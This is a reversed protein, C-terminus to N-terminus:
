LYVKLTNERQKSLYNKMLLHLSVSLASAPCEQVCRLCRICARRTHMPCRTKCLGCSTCNNNRILKVGMRSRWGPVLDAFWHKRQRPIDAPRPERIRDFLPSLGERDFDAPEQLYTHGIPVYAGAIVQGRVLKVGDALVNGHWMKGYCAILVVFEAELRPLFDRVPPPLNECYVPFVVVATRCAAPVGTEGIHRVTTNLKQAFFDAVAQSRGTGSFCYVKIM